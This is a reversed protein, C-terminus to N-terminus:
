RPLSAVDTDSKLYVINRAPVLGLTAGSARITKLSRLAEIDKRHLEQENLLQDREIEIRRVTYGKTHIETFKILYLFSVLGILMTLTFLLFFKGLRMTMPIAGQNNLHRRLRNRHNLVLQAM